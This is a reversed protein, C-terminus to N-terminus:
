PVVRSITVISPWRLFKTLPLTEGPVSTNVVGTTGAFPDPTVGLQIIDTVTSPAFGGGSPLTGDQLSRMERFFFEDTFTITAASASCGFIGLALSVIISKANM